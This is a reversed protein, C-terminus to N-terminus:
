KKRQKLGLMPFNTTFEIAFIENKSLFFFFSPSFLQKNDGSGKLNATLMVVVFPFLALVAIKWIQKTITLM